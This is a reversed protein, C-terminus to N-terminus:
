WASGPGDPRTEAAGGPGAARDGTGNDSEKSSAEDSPQEQSAREEVVATEPATSAAAQEPETPKAAAPLAAPLIRALVVTIDDGSGERSYHDLWSPLVGAVNELGFEGFRELLSHSWRQFESDGAFANSLGDTALLLFGGAGRDLAATRCLKHADGSALSHTATGVLNPDRAFFTETRGDPKLLLLDGDGIQALLLTDASVLAALLTTGYRVFLKGDEPTSDGFRRRSDELVANRWRQGLRRAFDAKFNARLASAGEAGFHTHFAFLEDLAAKVALAAGHESLDHRPDGHGDAVALALCPQGSASWSCLAYADQCPTGARCHSAGRRSCGFAWGLAPDHIPPPSPGSPM